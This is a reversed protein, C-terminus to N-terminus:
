DNTLEEIVEETLVEESSVDENLTIKYNKWNIRHKNYKLLDTISKVIIANSEKDYSNLGEMLVEVFPFKECFAKVSLYESYISVDFSSLEIGKEIITERVGDDITVKNHINYDRLKQIKDFLNTSVDKLHERFSFIKRNKDILKNILCFTVLRQFPKDKGQMFEEMSILNHIKLDKVRKLERDSFIVFDVSSKLPKYWFDLTEADKAVGYVVIRKKRHFTAMNFTESVWKCNKGDVWRELDYAMKCVIEGQLRKRKDKKTISGTRMAKVANKSDIFSQPVELTDLNVFHKDILSQLITQFEIIVARWQSKPYAKLGLLKYYSKYDDGKFLPMTKYKKKVIFMDDWRGTILSKIYEKKIGSIKESAIYMKKGQIDWFNIDKWGKNERVTKQSVIYTKTYDSFMYDKSNYLKSINILPFGKLTPSSVNISSYQSLTKIDISSEMNNLVVIISDGKFHHMISMFDDTEQISNNYKEVLIDAVEAIRSNIKDKAEQTYRISERNPTPFIGDTLSFRLGIPVRINSLELKGFDLPYYVNDLCIHLYKDSTIGSFQFKEHRYITFDNNVGEVNFYVNEFYALQEKTKKVFENKDSWKVPVIVKVGNEEETPTEYLLDITNVDEGEYMMYKREVGNKRCVFYFSSTYALPAKFGLGMMGLETSSNRKTSKGYKSIINKVDDADLGIGFDEVSFEFGGADTTILSVIIPTDNIGARRHSDLANSACERITSGISDSYLNKSLMQMLIQASDMDLSMGISEEPEGNEYVLADKQKELIM